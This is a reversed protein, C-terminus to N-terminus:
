VHARGIQAREEAERKQQEREEKSKQQAPM